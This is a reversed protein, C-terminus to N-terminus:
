EPCHVSRRWDQRISASISQFNAENSPSGSTNTEPPANTKESPARSNGDAGLADRWDDPLSRLVTSYIARMQEEHAVAEPTFDKVKSRQVHPAHGGKESKAEWMGPPWFRVPRRTLARRKISKPGQVPEILKLDNLM